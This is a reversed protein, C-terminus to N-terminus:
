AEGKKEIDWYDRRAYRIGVTNLLNRLENTAVFLGDPSSWGGFQGGGKMHGEVDLIFPLDVGLSDLRTNIDPLRNRLRALITAHGAVGVDVSGFNRLAEEDVHISKPCKKTYDKIHMFVLYGSDAVAEFEEVASLGQIHLNAADPVIGLYQSGVGRCIRIALEARCGILNAELEMGYIIRAKRCEEVIPGLRDMAQQLYPEPDEGAKGYSSFGRIFKARTMVAIEVARKGRALSEKPTLYPAKNGDDWPELKEKGVPAGITGIRFGAEDSQRVIDAITSDDLNVINTPKGDKPSNFFRPTWVKLGLAQGVVLQEKLNKDGEVSVGEDLFASVTVATDNM